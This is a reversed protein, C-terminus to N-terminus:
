NMSSMPETRVLREVTGLFDDKAIPKKLFANAGLETAWSESAFDGGSVVLVPVGRVVPNHSRVRLFEWGDFEPMLMDLIILSPVSRRISTLAEEGDMAATVHYGASTLLESMGLREVENDEVVLIHM